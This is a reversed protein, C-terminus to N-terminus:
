VLHARQAPLVIRVTHSDVTCPVGKKLKGAFWAIKAESGESSSTGEKSPLATQTVGM